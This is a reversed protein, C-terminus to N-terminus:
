PVISFPDTTGTCRTTLPPAAQTWHTKVGVGIGGPWDVSVSSLQQNASLIPFAHATPIGGTLANTGSASMPQIPATWANPCSSLWSSPPYINTSWPDGSLVGVATCAGSASCDVGYYADTPVVSAVYMSSWSSQSAAWLGGMAYEGAGQHYGGVAVCYTAPACSVGFLAGGDTTAHAAANGITKWTTSHAYTLAELTSGNQYTSGVAFCDNVGLTPVCSVGYLVAGTSGPVAVVPPNSPTWSTGNFVTAIALKPKLNPAPSAYDGGVAICYNAFRCFVGDLVPNWNSPQFATLVSRIPGVVTAPVGHHDVGSFQLVYEKTTHNPYLAEGVAMCFFNPAGTEVCSISFAATGNSGSPFPYFNPPAWSGPHYLEDILARTQSPGSPKESTGAAFCLDTYVCSVSSFQTFTSTPASPVVRPARLHGVRSSASAVATTSALSAVALCCLLAIWRSSSRRM